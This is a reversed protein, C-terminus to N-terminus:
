NTIAISKNENKYTQNLYLYVVNYICKWIFTLIKVSKQGFKIKMTM